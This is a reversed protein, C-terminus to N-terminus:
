RSKRGPKVQEDPGLMRMSGDDGCGGRRSDRVARFEKHDILDEQQPSLAKRVSADFTAM